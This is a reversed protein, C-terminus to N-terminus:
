SGNEPPSKPSKLSSLKDVATRILFYAFFGGFLYTIFLHGLVGRDGKVRNKSPDKPNYSITLQDGESLSGQAVETKGLFRRDDVVFEYVAVTVIAVRRGDNYERDEDDASIVRATTSAGGRMVQIANITEIAIFILIAGGITLMLSAKIVTWLNTQRNNLM